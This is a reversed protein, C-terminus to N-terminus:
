GEWPIHTEAAGPGCGYRYWPDWRMGACSVAAHTCGDVRSLILTAPMKQASAVAMLLGAADACNSWGRAKVRDWRQPRHDPWRARHPTAGDFRYRTSSVVDDAASALAHLPPGRYWEGIGKRVNQRAAQMIELATLGFPEIDHLRM